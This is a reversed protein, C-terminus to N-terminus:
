HLDRYVSYNPSPFHTIDQSHTAYHVDTYATDAVHESNIVLCLLAAVTSGSALLCGFGWLRIQVRTPDVRPRRVPDPRPDAWIKRFKNQFYLILEHVSPRHSFCTSNNHFYPATQVLIFLIQSSAQVNNHTINQMYYCKM